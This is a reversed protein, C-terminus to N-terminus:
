WDPVFSNWPEANSYKRLLDYVGLSLRLLERSLSLGM